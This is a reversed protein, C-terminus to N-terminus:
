KKCFPTHGVGKSGELTQAKCVEGWADDLGTM